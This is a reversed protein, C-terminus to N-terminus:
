ATRTTDAFLLRPHAAFGNRAYMAISDPSTHVTVHEVERDRAAELVAHVLRGGVGRNRYSPLVYCSQLDGSVRDLSRMTPVRPALALWAMGVIQAEAVAVFPIHSAAHSRAWDAAATVYEGESMDPREGRDDVTWAWRLRVVQELEDDRAQRVVIRTDAMHEVSSCGVPHGVGVSRDHCSESM